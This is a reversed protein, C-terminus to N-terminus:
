KVVVLKKVSSFTGATLRYFYVGSAVDRADWTETYWGPQQVEDLMTAVEQGLLDYIKLVVRAASPLAYRIRTTPNFPNPYNQDLSFQRPLNKVVGDMEPPPAPPREGTPHITIRGRPSQAPVASLVLAGSQSAKVWYAKGPLITDSVYYSGAYTFFQSTVLGGPLSTIGSAPLPSSVSGVLNWGQQVPVTDTLVTSGSIVVSAAGAFKLWYGSGITLTDTPLYSGEYAFARAVATPFLITRLSTTPRVPVSIMNWKDSVSIVSGGGPPYLGGALAAGISLPYNVVDNSWVEIYEGGNLWGNQLLQFYPGGSSDPSCSGTGGGDCGAGTEAHKNTQWGISDSYESALRLVETQVFNADLNDSQLQVRGPAIANVAKVIQGAVYGASDGTLNPFDIGKPGPNFLSLGLMRDPFADAFATAITSFGAVVASDSYGLSRWRATDADTIVTPYAPRGDPCAQTDASTPKPSGTPLRIEEDYVSLGPVHVLTLSGYAGTQRLHDALAYAAASWFEQVKQAWPLLIYASIGRGSSGGVVWVDFLPASNTDILARFGAPLSQLYTSGSQFGTELEVSFKKGHSLAIGVLSDLYGWDWNFAGWTTIGPLIKVIPVFIAQGTINNLYAPSTTLASNYAKAAAQENSAENLVYIGGPRPIGSTDAANELAISSQMVVVEYPNWTSMTFYFTSTARAADGTTLRSIFYPAYDSGQVDLRNASSLSDCAPHGSTVARHIFTCLGNDSDANFITQPDSWPGWPQDAVRMWIGRPNATSNNSSNYLMIWRHVFRNWEVGVEGMCDAAQPVGLSDPLYDHFLPTANSEGAMFVPTGDPGVAHLYEIATSDGMSGVPKRALFPPSKRFLSDGQTGWFYLYGDPGPAVATMIFKADPPKSLDYLYRFTNGDDDSVAVVSRRAGGSPSSSDGTPNSLVNDTGFIVYMRGSDSIGAIPTENTRLTIATDGQADLVVPNRFAGLSDVTFDLTLYPSTVTDSTFAIADNDSPTRPPDTQGNPHGQFTDSPSSDGFLFFLKGDHEFSYGRDTGTLGYRSVTRSLTPVDFEKDKEGTLQCVKQTTGRLYAIRGSTTRRRWRSPIGKGILSAPLCFALFVLVMLFKM